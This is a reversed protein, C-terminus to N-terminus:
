TPGIYTVARLATVNNVCAFLCINSSMWLPVPVWVVHTPDPVCPSEAILVRRCHETIGGMRSHGMSLM